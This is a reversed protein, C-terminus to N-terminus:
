MSTNTDTQTMKFITNLDIIAAVFVPFRLKKTQTCLLISLEEVDSTKYM